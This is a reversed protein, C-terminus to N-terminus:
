ESRLPITGQYLRTRIQCSARSSKLSNCGTRDTARPQALRHRRPVPSSQVRAFSVGERADTAAMPGPRTRNPLLVSFRLTLRELGGQGGSQPRGLTNGDSRIRKVPTRNVFM